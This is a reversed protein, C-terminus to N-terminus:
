PNTTSIPLVGVAGASKIQTVFHSRGVVSPKTSSCSFRATVIM